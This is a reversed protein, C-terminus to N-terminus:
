RPRERQRQADAGVGGDERQHVADQQARQRNGVGRLEIADAVVVIAADFASKGLVGAVVPSKEM